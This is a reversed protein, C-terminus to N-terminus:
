SEGPEVKLTERLRNLAHHLRSKVTGLPIGLAEAIEAQAFGDVFRLVVVEQQEPPLASVMENVAQREADLSVDKPAEPESAEGLEVSRQRKRILNLSLNRVVPYLFTKFRCTLTFGPFKGFVYIFTEQLVDLADEHRGCIREARAVVWDRYRYYLGELASADGRNAAVILEQDTRVPIPNRPQM